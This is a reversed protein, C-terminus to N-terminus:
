SSAYARGVLCPWQRKQGNPINQILVFGLLRRLFFFPANIKQPESALKVLVFANTAVRGDGGGEFDANAVPFRARSNGQRGLFTLTKKL